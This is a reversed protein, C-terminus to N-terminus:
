PLPSPGALRAAAQKSLAVYRDPDDVSYWKFGHKRSFWIHGGLGLLGQHLWAVLISWHGIWLSLLAYICPHLLLKAVLKWRPWVLRWTVAALLVMPVTALLVDLLITGLSAASRRVLVFAAVPVTAYAVLVAPGVLRTLTMATM